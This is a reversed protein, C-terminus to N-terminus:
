IIYWLVHDRAEEDGYIDRDFEEDSDKFVEEVESEDERSESAVYYRKQIM